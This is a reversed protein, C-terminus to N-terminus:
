GVSFAYMSIAGSEYGDVITTLDEDDSRMAAPYLLPLYHEPTPVALRGDERAAYECLAQADRRELAARVHRDFSVNWDYPAVGSRCAALNHVVNGSGLVFVGDDRLGALKRGFEWHTAPAETGDLALQVVPVDAEPFLHVLVSWSGHDLGWHQDQIVDMPALLKGVNRALEPDGPAPYQRAYLEPPFGGFDHITRPQEMATVAPQNTFWHASVCLVARPRPLTTAFARWAESYRNREIANLPTGHGVFAAPM